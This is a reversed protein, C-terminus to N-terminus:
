LAAADNEHHNVTITTKAVFLVLSEEREDNEAIQELLEQRDAAHFRVIGWRPHPNGWPWDYAVLEIWEGSFVDKIQSWPMRTKM